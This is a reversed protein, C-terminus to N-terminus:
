FTEKMFKQAEGVEARFDKFGCEASVRAEYGAEKLAGAFGKLYEGGNRGPCNREPVEAIHTHRLLDKNEDISTMPEEECYMHYADALLKVYPLNVRRAMAGGEAVSNLVNCEKKNLPEIAVTVQYKKAVENCMVLFKEINANAAEVSMNEPIRRAGGSGFVVVQVGLLQMRRMAEEVYAKLETMMTGDAIKLHAPIFGNCAELHLKGQQKSEILKELEEETLQMLTGVGAEAYDFGAEMILQDGILMNEMTNEAMGGPLCCGIRM